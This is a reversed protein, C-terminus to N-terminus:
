ILTWNTGGKLLESMDAKCVTHMLDYLTPVDIGLIVPYSLTPALAVSLLFNKDVVTLYVEAMSYVLEDGDICSMRSM